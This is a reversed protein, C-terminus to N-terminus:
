SRPRGRWTEMDGEKELEGGGKEEGLWGLTGCDLFYYIENNRCFFTKVSKVQYQLKSVSMAGTFKMGANQPCEFNQCQTDINMSLPWQM